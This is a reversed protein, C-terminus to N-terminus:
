ATPLPVPVFRKEKPNWELNCLAILYEDEAASTNASRFALPIAFSVITDPELYLFDAFDNLSFIGGRKLYRLVNLSFKLQQDIRALGVSLYPKLEELDKRIYFLEVMRNREAKARNRLERTSPVPIENLM